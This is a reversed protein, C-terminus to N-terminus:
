LRGGAEPSVISGLHRLALDAIEDADDDSVGLYPRAPQTVKKVAIMIEDGTEDLTKFWLSKGPRAEITGGFQRMAAYILPSGIEVGGPIARYTISGALGAQGSNFQTPGGRFKARRSQAWKEGDPGENSVALRHVSSEVLTQGAADLVPSPDIGFEEMQQFARRAARMGITKHATRLSM